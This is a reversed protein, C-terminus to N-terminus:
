KKQLMLTNMCRINAVNVVKYPELFALNHTSILTELHKNTLLFRKTKDPLLYIGNGLPSIKEEIGQDSTMRIFLTGQKKLVRILESFMVNFHAISTAFHLVASCIIHDFEENKFSMKELSAVVFRHASKPYKNKIIEIRKVEQDVAWLNFGHEHLWHINRGIGCGADLIKHEIHYRQKLIQDLLYLDIGGLLTILEEIKM